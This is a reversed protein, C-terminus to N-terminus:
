NIVNKYELNMLATADITVTKITGNVNLNISSTYDMAFNDKISYVLKGTGTGSMTITAGSVPITMNMSQSIDFYANGNAISILKYVAKSDADMANGAIPLSMPMDQTFTDGVKMPHDPFIIKNQISNMLQSVHKESTDKMQGSISDAKLKGNAGVHGYIVTTTKMKDTPVPIENGNVKMNLHDFSFGIQLPFIKGAGVAGSKINGNMGMEMNVAFPPTMGQSKLKNLMATDGSLNVNCDMNMTVKSDYNKNPSYKIKFLISEQAKTQYACLCLLAYIFLKKMTLNEKFIFFGKIL